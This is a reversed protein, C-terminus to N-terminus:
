SWHCHVLEILPVIRPSVLQMPEIGPKTAGATAAEMTTLPLRSLAQNWRNWLSAWTIKTFTWNIQWTLFQKHRLHVIICIHGLPPYDPDNGNSNEDTLHCSSWFFVIMQMCRSEIMQEPSGTRGRQWLLVGSSSCGLSPRWLPFPSTEPWNWIEGKFTKVTWCLSNAHLYKSKM